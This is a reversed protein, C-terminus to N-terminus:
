GKEWHRFTNGWEGGFDFCENTKMNAHICYGFLCFYTKKENLAHINRVNTSILFQRHITNELLHLTM